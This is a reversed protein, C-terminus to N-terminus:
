FTMPVEMLLVKTNKIAKVSITSIDWIGIGDKITLIDGNVELEGDLILLYVGNKINKIKYEETTGKSFHGLSFWSEQNIWVGQDKKDPSLVQYFKNEEKIDKTSIQDYRPQLNQKNPIVWIQLFKVENTKSKNYESHTIGTGASMIQVDGKKIVTINGMNDKHELDGELPISIIEMNKHPHTGFGMGAQVVDDNLVRLAGFNMREPNHYSGFSFSHKSNLWGHNVNGRTAAKHIIKKM